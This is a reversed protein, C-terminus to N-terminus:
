DTVETILISHEGFTEASPLIGVLVSIGARDYYAFVGFVLTATRWPDFTSHKVDLTWGDAIMREKYYDALEQMTGVATTMGPPPDAGADRDPLPPRVKADDPLPVGHIGSEITMRAGVDLPPRSETLPPNVELVSLGPVGAFIADTAVIPLDLYVASAAIWLDHTHIKEHLPHGILRCQARLEAVRSVLGDTV